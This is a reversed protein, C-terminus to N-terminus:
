RGVPHSTAWSERREEDPCRAGNPLANEMRALTERLARASAFGVTRARADDRLVREGNVRVAARALAIRADRIRERPSAGTQSLARTLHRRSVRLMRALADVSFAPDHANRRILREADHVLSLSVSAGAADTGAGTAAFEVALSLHGIETARIDRTTALLSLALSRAAIAAARAPAISLGHPWEVGKPALEVEVLQVPSSWRVSFAGDTPLVIASPTDLTMRTPALVTAEDSGTLLIRRRPSATAARSPTMTVPTSALSRIVIDDLRMERSEFRLATAGGAASAVWGRRRYWHTAAAGEGSFVRVRGIGPRASEDLDDDRPM